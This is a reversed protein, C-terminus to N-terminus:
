KYFEDPFELFNCHTFDFQTTFKLRLANNTDKYLIAKIATRNTSNLRAVKLIITSLSEVNDNLLNDTKHPINKREGHIYERVAAYLQKEYSDDFACELLQRIDPNDSFLSAM